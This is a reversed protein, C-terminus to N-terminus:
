IFPWKKSKNNAGEIGNHVQAGKVHQIVNAQTIDNCRIVQYLYPFPVFFHSSFFEYVFAM